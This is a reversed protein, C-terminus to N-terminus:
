CDFCARAFHQTDMYERVNQILGVDNLDFVEVYRNHYSRGLASRTQYSFEAAVTSGTGILGTVKFVGIFNPDFLAAAKAHFGEVVAERGQYTGAFSTDGWLTWTADSAFIANLADSSGLARFFSLVVEQSPSVAEVQGQTGM